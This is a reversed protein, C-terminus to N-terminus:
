RASSGADRDGDVSSAIELLYKAELFHLYDSAGGRITMGAFGAFFGSNNRGIYFVPGGSMGDSDFQEKRDMKLRHVYPSESRGAYEAKVEAVRATIRPEEYNVDQRMSPYGFVLFLVREQNQWYNLPNIPFFDSTLNSIKYDEVKFRFVRVDLIDTDVFELAPKPFYLKSGTLISNTPLHIIAVDDPHIDEIQHATCFVLHTGGLKLATGSGLFRYPFKPIGTLIFLQKCYGHLAHEVSGFDRWIHGVLVQRAEQAGRIGLLRELSPGGGSM